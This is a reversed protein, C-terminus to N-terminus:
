GPLIAGHAVLAYGQRQPVNVERAEVRVTWAGSEPALRLVMEVNNIREASGGAVSQGDAFVNGLFSEGSPSTVVFDLDDVMALDSGVSGAPDTWVLTIKPPLDSTTVEIPHERREGAALGAPNRVDWLLLRSGDESPLLRDLSDLFGWGEADNPFPRDTSAPRALNLLVAKLLAGSPALTDAADPTGSPHWGETFYQRALTALAAARPTAFSSACPALVGTQCRTGDVVKRIASVIQCGTTLLDPKRRGDGTPGANGDGQNPHAADLSACSVSLTNKASGPPGQEEDTNGSSGLVLHDDNVWTFQDVEASRQDYTPPVGVGQTRSHWSNSHIRAGADAAAALEALLTTQPLDLRNGCVLTAAWAVGRHPATGPLNLDDGAAIGATFTMHDSAPSQLVNRVQRLKRHEPGANPQAPDRFFCHDLAPQGNDILGIVQGEGHSRALPGTTLTSPSPLGVVEGNADDVDVPVPEVWRVDERQALAALDTVDVFGFRVIVDGGSKRDDILRPEVGGADTIAQVTAPLDAQPFLVANIEARGTQGRGRNEHLSRAGVALKFNGLFRMVARVRDDRRLENLRDLPLRELYSRLPLYATFTLDFQERLAAMDAAPLPAKFQVIWAPTQKPDNPIDDSNREQDQQEALPDFRRGGLSVQFGGDQPTTTM